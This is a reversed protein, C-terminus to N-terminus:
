QDYGQPPMAKHPCLRLPAPQRPRTCIVVSVVILILSLIPPADDDDSSCVHVKM